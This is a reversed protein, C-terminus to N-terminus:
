TSLGATPRGTKKESLLCVILSSDLGGSLSTGIPVDARLRKRISERMLEQFRAATEGIPASDRVQEYDPTWYRRRGLVKGDLDLRMATAPPFRSVGAFMTQEIDEHYRGECYSELTGQDVRPAIDPHVFLAKMESAFAVGGSKLPAHFLPKEGFRDRAVFVEGRAEDFIVFAFMGNLREVCAEGWRQYAALLVETDSETRFEFRDRRLEDRLEVYNYIEGNFVITLRGNASQMPQGASDSLDVIALRRHALAVVTRGMHRVVLGAGDPGRHALRERMAQVLGESIAGKPVIVTVLGCM